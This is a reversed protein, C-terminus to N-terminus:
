SNTSLILCGQKTNLYDWCKGFEYLYKLIEEGQKRLENHQHESRKRTMDSSQAIHSILKEISAVVKETLSKILQENPSAM